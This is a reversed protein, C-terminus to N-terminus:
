ENRRKKVWIYEDDNDDLDVPRSRRQIIETPRYPSEEPRPRVTNVHGGRLPMPMMPRPIPRIQTPTQIYGGLLSAIRLEEENYSDLNLPPPTIHRPFRPATRRFRPPPAMPVPNVPLNGTMSFHQLVPMIATIEERSLSMVTPTNRILLRGNYSTLSLDHYEGDSKNILRATRTEYPRSM